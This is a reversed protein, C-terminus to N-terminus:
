RLAATESLTQLFAALEHVASTSLSGAHEVAQELSPVGGDHMYPATLAVNRLSPVRFKGVMAGDSFLPGAHCTSCQAIFRKL